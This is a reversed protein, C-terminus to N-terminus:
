MGLVGWTCLNIPFTIYHLDRCPSPKQLWVFRGLSRGIGRISVNNSLSTKAIGDERDVPGRQAAMVSKVARLSYFRLNVYRIKRIFIECLTQPYVYM